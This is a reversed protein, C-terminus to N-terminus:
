KSELERRVLASVVPRLIEENIMDAIQPQLKAIVRAVVANVLEDDAPKGATSGGIASPSAPEAAEVPAPAPSESAFSDEEQALTAAAQTEPSIRQTDALAPKAHEISAQEPASEAAAAEPESWVASSPAFKSAGPSNLEIM